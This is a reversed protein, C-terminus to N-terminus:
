FSRRKLRCRQDKTTSLQQQWEFLYKLRFYSKVLQWLNFRKITHLYWEISSDFIANWISVASGIFLSYTTKLSFFCYKKEIYIFMKAYWKLFMSLRNDQCSWNCISAAIRYNKNLRTLTLLHNSFLIIHTHQNVYYCYLYM